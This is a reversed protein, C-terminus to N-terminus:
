FASPPATRDTSRINHTHTHTHTHPADLMSHTSHPSKSLLQHSSHQSMATPSLLWLYPVGTHKCKLSLSLSLTHAQIHLCKVEQHPKYHGRKGQFGQLHSCNYLLKEHDPETKVFTKICSDGLKITLGEQSSCRAWKFSINWQKKHTQM